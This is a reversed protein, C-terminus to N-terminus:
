RKAPAPAPAPAASAASLSSGQSWLPKLRALEDDFKANVRKKEEDQNAIFRQQVAIQQDNEEMQRKLKAPMKSPDKVYFEAEEKLKVKAKQLEDINRQAAGAADTMSKLAKGRELDHAAQNPYRAVLARQVRKEEAQRQKEEALKREQAAQAEREPATLTPPIVRTKGMRDMVKQERDMCEPILRDSTLRQGKADVCSYVGQQALVAGAAGTALVVALGAKVWGRM